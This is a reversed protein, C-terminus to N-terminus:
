PGPKYVLSSGLAFTYAQAWRLQRDATFSEQMMGCIRQADCLVRYNEIVSLLVLLFDSSDTDLPQSSTRTADFEDLLIEKWDHEAYESSWPIAEDLITWVLSTLDGFATRGPVFSRGNASSQSLLDWAQLIQMRARILTEKYAAHDANFMEWKSRAKRDALRKDREKVQDASSDQDSRSRKSRIFSSISDFLSVSHASRPLTYNFSAEAEKIVSQCESILKM